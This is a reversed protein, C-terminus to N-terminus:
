GKLWGRAAEPLQAMRGQYVTCAPLSELFARGYGKTLLRRDFVAVVGRDSQTRILRGFGQRFRLIAEPLAYQGFHNEYTEARAAFIPDSPVEFPIRAIALVSLAEGPVDVGEWFSRTGFLVARDTDRFGEILQQRSTGESQDFITIGEANLAPAVTQTTKRLQTYSTFLVLARGQTALCLDTLGRELMEQYPQGQNPEPIDSVLYIMTSTKYDFPSGISLEGVYDPEAALRARLYDFTSATQLTASTLVVSEKSRWLYENVMPGVDLPATHISLHQQGSSVEAWYITNPQPAEIFAHFLLHVEEFHRASASASHLLDDYAPIEFDALDELGRALHRMVSALTESFQGLVRWVECVRGWGARSRMEEVIRVKTSYDSYGLRVTEELFDYLAAFLARVHYRMAQAAAYINEAHEALTDWYSQPIVGHTRSLLDSLLGQRPSGLDALQRYLTPEDLRMSLGNTVADELNHAEDIILYDYEPLVHNGSVVDSLLLAHNVILVHASQAALRAKYFPCAGGMQEICRAATCGEDEASLRAWVAREAPGRVTIENRDGTTSELLWVLIKAFVRMEDISTPPRRRLTALRRPCLYNGRGKLVTARFPVGLAAGMAPIDKYILQDQLNITNTSVVVRANNQVAWYIAPILYAISKGTGTGAEVMLHYGENFADAVAALMQTQQPRHEYHAFARDLAGGPEVLAALADIDLRALKPNPELPDFHQTLPGFLEILDDEDAGSARRTFGARVREQLAAEFAPRASWDLGKSSEVIEELTHLPLNLVRQWLAWYVQATAQADDPARHAAEIEIGFELTLAGLNYRPATPLMVSALEYTDLALNDRLVNHRRLFGLDFEINHGLVPRDGVWRALRPLVTRLDPAGDVDSQKIGTLTVIHPPIPRHPDVFSQFRDVIAGDKFKVAGIEIIADREPNLGTTELDLAVIEDRM